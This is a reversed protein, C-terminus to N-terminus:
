LVFLAVLRPERVKMRVGTSNSKDVELWENIMLLVVFWAVFRPARVKMQVGTSNSSKDIKSKIM